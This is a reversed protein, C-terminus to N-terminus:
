LLACCCCTSTVKCLLSMGSFAYRLSSGFLQMWFCRKARSLSSMKTETGKRRRRTTTTTVAAVVPLYSPVYSRVAADSSFPAKISTGRFSFGKVNCSDSKDWSSVFSSTSSAYPIVTRIPFTRPPVKSIVFVVLLLPPSTRTPGIRDVIIIGGGSMQSSSRCTDAINGAVFSIRSSSSSAPPSSSRRVTLPAFPDSTDLFSYSIDEGKRSYVRALSRALFSAGAFVRACRAKRVHSSSCRGADRTTRIFAIPDVEWIKKGRWCLFSYFRALWTGRKPLVSVRICQM